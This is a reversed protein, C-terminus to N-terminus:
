KILKKNKLTNDEAIVDLPSKINRLANTSVHTYIETTKSSNHGLLTQIYRLDTGQELLHTAFSHRFTHATVKKEVGAKKCARKIINGVSTKSYQAQGPSEFLWYKPRAIALYNVLQQAILDSLVSTRDKNGKGGKIFLQKRDFDLDQRRLNLLEGMRLGASYLLGVICKHKINDISWLIEMVEEVSLVGPLRKEKRPRNIWYKKKGLGLVQEYYFKISNIIQNQTSYSVKRKDVMYLLYSKIDEETIDKVKKDPFYNVFANFLSTYTSITSQSYRREKLQNLFADPVKRKHKGSTKDKPSAHRDGDEGVKAPEKPKDKFSLEKTDVWAKGKYAAFIRKLNAPNNPLYWCKNTQSWKCHMKKCVDILEKEYPYFLGLQKGGRHQLPKVTVTLKDVAQM